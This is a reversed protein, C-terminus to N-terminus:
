NKFINSNILKLVESITDNAIRLEKPLETDGSNLYIYFNYVDNKLDYLDNLYIPTSINLYKSLIDNGMKIISNDYELGFVDDRFKMFGIEFNSKSINFLEFCNMFNTKVDTFNIISDMNEEIYRLLIVKVKLFYSRVKIDFRNIMICNDMEFYVNYIDKSDNYCKSLKSGLEKLYGNPDLKQLVPAAEYLMKNYENIACFLIYDTRM